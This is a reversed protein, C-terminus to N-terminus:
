KKVAPRSSRGTSARLNSRGRPTKSGEFLTWRGDGRHFRVQVQGLYTTESGLPTVTQRLVLTWGQRTPKGEAGPAMSVVAALLFACVGGVATWRLRAHRWWTKELWQLRDLLDCRGEMLCPEVVAPRETQRLLQESVALLTDRYAETADGLVRAVRADCCPEQLHRIRRRIPPLLPHFWYVLNLLLTVQQLILDGRKLHALEQLFIHWLQM